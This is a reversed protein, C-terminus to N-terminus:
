GKRNNRVTLNLKYEVGTSNLISNVVIRHYGPLPVHNSRRTGSSGQSM